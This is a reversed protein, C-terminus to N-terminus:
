SHEGVFIGGAHKVSAIHAWPDALLLCLHEPAYANAIEFADDLTPTVIIAGNQRLSEAAISERNLLALQRTLEVEVHRALMTSTTLLMASAMADHESQALLDAACLVADASEDAILLTETPGPLADIAVH